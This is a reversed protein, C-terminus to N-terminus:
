KDFVAPIDPQYERIIDVKKFDFQEHLVYDNKALALTKELLEDLHHPSKKLDSKRAFSLMNDVIDAARQGAERIRELQPLIERKEMYESIAELSTGSEYAADINAPLKQTLRNHIVQANQMM